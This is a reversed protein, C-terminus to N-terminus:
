RAPRAAMTSEWAMVSLRGSASTRRNTARGIPLPLSGPAWARSASSASAVSAIEDRMPGDGVILLLLNGLHAATPMDKTAEGHVLMSVLDHGPNVKRDEWLREFYRVCAIMEDRKDELTEVIGGPQPIAFVVDSWRTLM